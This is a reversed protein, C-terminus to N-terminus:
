NGDPVGGVHIGLVESGHQFVMAPVELTLQIRGEDGILAAGVIKTNGTICNKGIARLWMEFPLEPAITDAWVKVRM